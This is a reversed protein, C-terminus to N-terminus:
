LEESLDSLLERIIDAKQDDHEAENYKRRYYEPNHYQIYSLLTDFLEDM